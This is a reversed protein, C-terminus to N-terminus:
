RSRREPPTRRDGPIRHTDPETTLRRCATNGKHRAVGLIRARKRPYQRHFLANVWIILHDLRGAAAPVDDLGTGGQMLINVELDTGGTMRKVGALLLNQVGAAPNLSETLTETIAADFASKSDNRGDRRGAGAPRKREPLHLIWGLASGALEAAAQQRQINM